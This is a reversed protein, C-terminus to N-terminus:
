QDDGIMPLWARIFIEFQIINGFLISPKVLGTGTIVLKESAPGAMKVDSSTEKLYLALIAPTSISPNFETLEV